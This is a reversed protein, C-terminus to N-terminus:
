DMILSNGNIKWNDSPPLITLLTLLKRQSLKDISLERVGKDGLIRIQLDKAMALQRIQERTITYFATERLMIFGSPDSNDIDRDGLSGKGSLPILVGDALFSVTQGAPIFLWDSAATTVVLRYSAPHGPTTFLVMGFAGNYPRGMTVTLSQTKTWKDTVLEVAVQSPAVQQAPQAGLTSIILLNLLFLKIM